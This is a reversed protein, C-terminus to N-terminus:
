LPNSSSENLPFALENITIRIGSAQTLGLAAVKSGSKSLTIDDGAQAEQASFLTQRKMRLSDKPM